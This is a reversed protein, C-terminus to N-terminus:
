VFMHRSYVATFILAWWLVRRRNTAPDFMIGMRGFDVQLESGPDCQGVRLTLQSRKHGLESSCFRHLTRYPIRLRLACSVVV